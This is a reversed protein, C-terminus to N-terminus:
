KRVEVEGLRVVLSRDISRTRVRRLRTVSIFFVFKAKRVISIGSLFSRLNLYFEDARRAVLM